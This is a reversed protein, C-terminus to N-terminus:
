TGELPFFAYIGQLRRLVVNAELRLEDPDKAVNAAMNWKRAFADFRKAIVKMHDQYQRGLAAKSMDTNSRVAPYLVADAVSLYLRIVSM